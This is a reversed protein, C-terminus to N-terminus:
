VLTSSSSVTTTHPVRPPARACELVDILESSEWERAMYSEGFGIKGDAGLRAFFADPDRVTIVPASAPGYTRGDPLEVRIGARAAVRRLVIRAIAARVPVPAPRALDPWRRLDIERRDSDHDLLSM